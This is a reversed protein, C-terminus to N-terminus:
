DIVGQEEGEEKIQFTVTQLTKFENNCLHTEVQESDFVHRSLQAAFIGANKIFEMDQAAKEKVVMRFQYIGDQKNLQVSGSRGKQFFGNQLLYDGLKRAQTETVASTYFLGSGEYELRTGWEKPYGLNGCGILIACPIVSFILLFAVSHIVDTLGKQKYRALGTIFTLM